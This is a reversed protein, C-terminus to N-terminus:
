SGWRGERALQELRTTHPPTSRERVLEGPTTYPPAKTATHRAQCVIADTLRRAMELRPLEKHIEAALANDVTEAGVGFDLVIGARTLAIEPGRREAIGASTHLAIAQWVIDARSPELGGATLLEVAFDAGDVEFRQGRDHGDALGIDHMVCSVFLLEDDYDVDPALQRARAIATAFLYSRVSHNFLFAEEHTMAYERAIRAFRGGPIWRAFDNMAAWGHRAASARDLPLIASGRYIGAVHRM